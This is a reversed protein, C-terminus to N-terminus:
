YGKLSTLLGAVLSEIWGPCLQTLAFYAAILISMWAMAKGQLASHRCLWDMLATGARLWWDARAPANQPPEIGRLCFDRRRAARAQERLRARDERAQVALLHLPALPGFTESMWRRELHDWYVPNRQRMATIRTVPMGLHAAVQADRLRAREEADAVAILSLPILTDTHM